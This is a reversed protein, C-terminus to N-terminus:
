RPWLTHLMAYDPHLSVLTNPFLVFYLVSELDTGSLGDIPARAKANGNKRGM